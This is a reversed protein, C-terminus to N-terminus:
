LYVISFASFPCDQLLVTLIYMTQNRLPQGYPICSWGNSTPDWNRKVEFMNSWIAAETAGGMSIVRIGDKNSSMSHIREPLTPPIWDGSMMVVRLSSPLMRRSQDCYNVIIEMFAPVTNWISINHREIMEVWLKPDPNVKQPEGDLTMDRETSLVLTGGAGLMGFVDFVSLDFSQSSLGLVKDNSM